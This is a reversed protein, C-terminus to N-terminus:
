LKKIILILKKLYLFFLQRNKENPESLFSQEYYIYKNFIKIFYNREDNSIQTNNAITQLFTKYKIIIQEWNKKPIIINSEKQQIIFNHYQRWTPAKEIDSKTKKYSEKFKIFYTHLEKQNMSFDIYKFLKSIIKDHDQRENFYLLYESLFNKIFPFLKELNKGPCATQWVIKHYTIADWIFDKMYPAESIKAHHLTQNYPGINYYRSLSVLLIILSKIQDKTPQEQQFNWLLDIGISNFNNFQAHAGIIGPWGSRWEYIWWFKWILFHYWIDWRDRYFTHLEQIEQVHKEIAQKTKLWKVPMASHHIIIKTKPYFFQQKRELKHKWIYNNQRQTEYENPFHEKLYNTREQKLWAEHKAASTKNKTSVKKEFEQYKPHDSFLREDHADREPRYIIETYNFHRINNANKQYEVIKHITTLTFILALISEM